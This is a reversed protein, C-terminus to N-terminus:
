NNLEVSRVEVLLGDEYNERYWMQGNEYWEEIVGDLEVTKNNLDSQRKHTSM